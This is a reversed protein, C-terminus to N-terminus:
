KVRASGRFTVVGRIATSPSAVSAIPEISFANLLSAPQTVSLPAIHRTAFYLTGDGVTRDMTVTGPIRSACSGTIDCVDIQKGTLGLQTWPGDGTMTTASSGDYITGQSDIGEIWTGRSFPSAGGGVAFFLKIQYTGNPVLFRFMQDGSGNNVYECQKYLDSDTVGTWTEASWDCNSHGQLRWYAGQEVFWTNGSADPGYNTNSNNALRVRIGSAPYVTVPFKIIAGADATATCTVTTSSRAVVSSPATYVGGATLSGLTPSMSCSFTTTVANNVWVNLQTQPTGALLSVGLPRDTGITVPTIIVPMTSWEHTTTNSAIVVAFTEPTEFANTPDVRGKHFTPSTSILDEFTSENVAELNDTNFGSISLMESAIAVLMPYDGVADQRLQIHGNIGGDNAFAGYDKLQQQICQVAASGTNTFSSKLRFRTGFPIAGGDTAHAVAPWKHANALLGVSFTMRLAHKIPVGNDACNKIEQYGDTLPLIYNGAADVGQSLTYTDGYTVGSGSNCTTCSGSGQYGIPYLKYFETALCTDKNMALIHQDVQKSDTFLGNEVRLNPFTDVQYSGNTGSNAFVMSTTPTASTYVQDPMDVEANIPAASIQAHLYTTTAVDVPLNSIKTNVVHDPPLLNCGYISNKSVLNGPATYAGTGSNVTGTSGSQVSWTVTQDAHFITGSGVWIIPLSPTIVPAVAHSATALLFTLGVCVRKM